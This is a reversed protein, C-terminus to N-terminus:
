TTCHSSRMRCGSNSPSPPPGWCLVAYTGYYLPHLPPRHRRAPGLLPPCQPSRGPARKAAPSQFQAQACFFCSDLSSKKFLIKLQADFIEDGQLFESPFVIPAGFVAEAPSLGTYKRLQARLGLLVWPIEKAWTAAVTCAHLVDRLRHHFREIAGNSEPHYATTQRHTINLM